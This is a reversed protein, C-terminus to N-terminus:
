GGQIVAKSLAKKMLLKGSIFLITIWLIQMGIGIIGDIIPIDGVYLRFPFDSVYRFPLIYAINQLYKPFFPIPIVLGSLLDALIMFMNVIGKEDLTYIIIIHYFIIITAMLFTSLTLSVVFVIFTLLNISLDLTYPKPLLSAFILVPLFRLAVASLREGLLKSVWMMYLDQPRCLEYALDGKKIMNIIERDRHWLYILAFFAQNLWLFSILKTLEMPTNTLDSEYFAIYVSTYVFGFFIQTIIGAYAAARYQLGIKFKLIFYSLYSKM